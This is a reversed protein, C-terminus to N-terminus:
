ATCVPDAGHELCSVHSVEERRLHELIRPIGKGDVLNRGIGAMKSRASSSALLEAINRVLSDADMTTATGLNRVAGIKELAAVIEAQEPTRSYSMAACGMFLLEWLTGGGCIIAVDSEAMLEPMRDTQNLFRISTHVEAIAQRLQVSHPNSGGAVVTVSLDPASIRRLSAILRITLKDPDSGGMTILLRHARDPIERHWNQWRQFDHRLMAFRTGLLLRVHAERSAYMEESAQPNQDVVLDASYHDCQACDDIVLVRLGLRKLAAQYASHLHYGDIVVWATERAHALRAFELADREHDSSLRCEAVEIREAQLRADIDSTSEAMAFVVTGGADRWGQALALCRMVHGTGIATSADARIILLGLSM